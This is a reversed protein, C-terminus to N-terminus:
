SRPQGRKGAQGLNEARDWLIQADTPEAEFAANFARDALDLDGSKGPDQGPEGVSPSRQSPPRGADDPLGLCARPRGPQLM